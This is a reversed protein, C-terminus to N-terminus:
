DRENAEALTGRRDDLARAIAELAANREATGSRAMARGAAHAAATVSAMYEHVDPAAVEAPASM